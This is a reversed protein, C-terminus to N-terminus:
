PAVGKGKDTKSTNTGSFYTPHALFGLLYFGYAMGYVDIIILLLYYFSIDMLDYMVYLCKIDMMDMIVVAFLKHTILVCAIAIIILSLAICDWLGIESMEVSDSIHLFCPVRGSMEVYILPSLM